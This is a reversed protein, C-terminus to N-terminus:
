SGSARIEFTQDKVVRKGARIELRYSGAPWARPLSFKFDVHDLGPLAVVTATAIKFNTSHGAKVAILDASYPAAARIESIHAVFHIPNDGASFAKVAVGPKGKGNDRALDIKAISQTASAACALALLLIPALRMM